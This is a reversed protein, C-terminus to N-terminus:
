GILMPFMFELKMEKARLETLKNLKNIESVLFGNIIMENKTERLKKLRRYQRFIREVTYDRVNRSLQREYMAGDLSNTNILVLLLTLYVLMTYNKNM